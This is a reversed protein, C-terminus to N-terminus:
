DFAGAPAVLTPPVAPEMGLEARLKATEAQEYAALGMMQQDSLPPLTGPEDDFVAFQAPPQFALPDTLPNLTSGDGACLTRSELFELTPRKPRRLIPSHRRSRSV